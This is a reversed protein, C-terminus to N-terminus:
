SITVPVAPGGTSPRSPGARGPSPRGGPRRPQRPRRPHGCAPCCDCIPAPICGLSDATRANRSRRAFAGHQAAIVHSDCSARPRGRDADAITNMRRASPSRRFGVTRRTWSAPLSTATWRSRTSPIRGSAAPTAPEGPRAGVRDDARAALQHRRDAALAEHRDVAQQEHSPAEDLRRDVATVFDPASMTSIRGPTMRGSTACRSVRIRTGSSAPPNMRVSSSAVPRAAAPASPARRAHGRARRCPQRSRPRGQAVQRAEEDGTVAAVPRGARGPKRNRHDEAVEVEGPQCVAARAARGGNPTSMSLTSPRLASAAATRNTMSSSPM